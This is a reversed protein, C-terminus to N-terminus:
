SAPFLRDKYEVPLMNERLAWALLHNAADNAHRHNPKWWGMRKLKPDDGLKRSSSPMPKLMTASHRRCASKAAGIVEFSYRPIGTKGGGTTVLYMEWGIWLGPGALAAWGNVLDDIHDFDEQGSLFTDTSDLMAWGTLKGPDLWVVASYAGM